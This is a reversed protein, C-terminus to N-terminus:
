DLFTSPAGGSTTSVFPDRSWRDDAQGLGFLLGAFLTQEAVRTLERTARWPLKLFNFIVCPHNGKRERGWVQDATGEAVGRGDGM